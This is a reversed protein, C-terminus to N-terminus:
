IFKLPNIRQWHIFDNLNYGATYQFHPRDLFGKWDGGWELGLSKGINGIKQWDGDYSAHKDILFCVDFAVRHNHYSYGGKANTVISGPRTRGQAYLKDQEEKSRYGQTVILEIGQKKCEALFKYMLRKVKPKLNFDAAM